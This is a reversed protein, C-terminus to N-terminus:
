IANKKKKKPQFIFSIENPRGTTEPANKAKM